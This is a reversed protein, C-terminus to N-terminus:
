PIVDPPPAISHSVIVERPGERLDRVVTYAVYGVWTAVMVLLGVDAALKIKERM